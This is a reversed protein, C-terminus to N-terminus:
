SEEVIEEVSEDEAADKPKRTRKGGKALIEIYIAPGPGEDRGAAAADIAANIEAIHVSAATEIDAGVRCDFDWFDAGKPLKKRRERKIYKRVDGKILEIVRPLKHSTSALPYTKKM